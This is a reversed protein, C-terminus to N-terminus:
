YQIAPVVPIANADIGAMDIVSGTSHMYAGQIEAPHYYYINSNGGALANLSHSVWVDARAQEATNVFAQKAHLYKADLYSKGSVVADLMPTIGALLLHNSGSSRVRLYPSNIWYVHLSGNGNFNLARLNVMGKLELPSGGNSNIFLADSSIGSITVPGAGSQTIQQLVIQKGEIDVANRNHLNVSLSTSRLNNATLHGAGKYQLQHLDPLNIVVQPTMTPNSFNFGRQSIYLTNQVNNVSITSLQAPMGTATVSYGPNQSTLVVDMDGNIVVNDFSHVNYCQVTPTNALVPAPSPSAVTKRHVASCGCLVM